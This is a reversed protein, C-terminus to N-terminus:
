LLRNRPRGSTSKEKPMTGRTFARDNENNKEAKIDQEEDDKYIYSAVYKDLIERKEIDTHNLMGVGKYRYKNRNCNHYSGKGQTIENNWYEGIMDGLHADQQVQQGDFFLLTHYHVGKKETHEKLAIKGVLNKFLSPKGRENNQMKNYYKNGTDLTIEDSYPKKFGFDLRLVTLKSYKDQLADIYKKTSKIRKNLKRNNEM